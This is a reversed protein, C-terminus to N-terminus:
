GTTKKKEGPKFQLVAVNTKSAFIQPGCYVFCSFHAPEMVFVCEHLQTHHLPPLLLQHERQRPAYHRLM